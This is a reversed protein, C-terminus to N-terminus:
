IGGVPGKKRVLVQRGKAVIEIEEEFISMFADIARGTNRQPANPFNYDYDDFLIFGRDRVLPWVLVADQMAYIAEHAGDIYFFDFSNPELSRLIVKSDGVLPQCYHAHGTATINHEFLDKLKGGIGDLWAAHESSGEFTDICVMKGGRKSVIKDLLWTTSGGQWSGIEGCVIPSQTIHEDFWRTWDPINPSFFDHTFVYGKQESELWGAATHARYYAERSKKFDGINRYISGLQYYTWFVAEGNQSASELIACARANDGKHEHCSAELCLTFPWVDRLADKNSAIAALAGDYDGSDHIKRIHSYDEWSM